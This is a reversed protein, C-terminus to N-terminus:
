PTRIILDVGNEKLVKSDLECSFSYCYYAKLLAMCDNFLNEPTNEGSFSNLPFYYVRDVDENLVVRVGNFTYPLAFRADNPTIETEVFIKEDKSVKLLDEKFTKVNEATLVRM